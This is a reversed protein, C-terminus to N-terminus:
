QRSDCASGSSFRLTLACREALRSQRILNNWAANLPRPHHHLCVDLGDFAGAPAMYNQRGPAGRRSMRLGGTSFFVVMGDHSASVWLGQGVVGVKFLDGDPTVVDWQYRNALGPLTVFEKQFPAGIAGKSYM